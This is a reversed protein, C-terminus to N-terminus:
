GGEHPTQCHAPEPHGRRPAPRPRGPSWDPGGPKTWEGAEGAEVVALTNSLGDPFSAPLRLRPVPQGPGRPKEFLAGQHSFGRYFTKGEGAKKRADPTGYVAPMEALLPRNNASDWPEDLKFQRYLGDENLYPLLHVRWSLLPKFTPKAGAKFQDDYSNNPLAANNDNYNHLALGIQTMNRRSNDSDATEQAGEVAKNDVEKTRTFLWYGGLGGGGCCVVFVGVLIGILLGPNKKKGRRRPRDDEDEHAARRRSRDPRDDPEAEDDARRHARAPRNDDDDDRPRRRRPRDEDEFEDDRAM